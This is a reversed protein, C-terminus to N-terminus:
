VAIKSIQEYETKVKKMEATSASNSLLIQKIVFRKLGRRFRSFSLRSEKIPSLQSEDLDFWEMDKESLMILRGFCHAVCSLISFRIISQTTRAQYDSFGLSQKLERICIEIQFRSGYVEIIEKAGLSLDTSIFIIPEYATEAVVVKVKKSIGRLMLNKTVARVLHDKGYLHVKLEQVPLCKILDALQWKKGYKRPRGIGSYIPPDDWAVGDKRWRTIVDIGKDIMPNIFNAKAFYADAVVRFKHDKLFENIQYALAILSEMFSMPQSNGNETVVYHSPNKLGSILRTLIPWCLFRDGFRGILGAIAWNHGFIYEGRDPNASHDHWKQVGFMKKSAKAVFTSDIALLYKGFVLFRPGHKELLIILLTKSVQIISWKNEALFREYSSIHKSFFFM